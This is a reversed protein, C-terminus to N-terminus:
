LFPDFEELIKLHNIITPHQNEFYCHSKINGGLQKINKIFLEYERKIYPRNEDNIQYPTVHCSYNKDILRKIIDIDTLYVNKGGNHGGDLFYFTKARESLIPKEKCSKALEYLLQNLVIIGKSFGVLSIPTNCNILDSYSDDFKVVGDFLSELHRWSKHDDTYEDPYYKNNM